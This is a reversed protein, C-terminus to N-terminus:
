DETIVIGGVAFTAQDNIAIALTTVTAWYLVSGVGVTSTEHLAWGVITYAAAATAFTVAGTNVSQGAVTLGATCFTTAVRTYGSSANTVETGATSDSPIVTYLASYVTAAQTYTTNRLIHDLIKNELYDSKSGM